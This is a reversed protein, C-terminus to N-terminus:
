LSVPKEAISVTAVDRGRYHTMVSEALCQEVRGHTRIVITIRKASVSPIFSCFDERSGIQSMAGLGAGLVAGTFAGVLAGLWQIIPASFENVPTLALGTFAGLLLGVLGCLFISRNTASKQAPAAKLSEAGEDAFVSIYQPKFNRELVELAAEADATGDFVGKVLRDAVM